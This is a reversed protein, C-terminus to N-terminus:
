HTWGFEIVGELLIENIFYEYLVVNPQDFTGTSIHEGNDFDADIEFIEVTGDDNLLLGRYTHTTVSFGCETEPGVDLEYFHDCTPCWELSRNHDREGEELRVGTEELRGKCDDYAFERAGEWASFDVETDTDTDADTDTDTDTDADTDADADTPNASDVVGSDTQVELVTPQCALLALTLM